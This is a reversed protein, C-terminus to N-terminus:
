EKIERNKYKEYDNRIDEALKKLEEFNYNLEDKELKFERSFDVFSNCYIVELFKLNNEEYLTFDWPSDILEKKM